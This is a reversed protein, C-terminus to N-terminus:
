SLDCPVHTENCIGSQTNGHCSNPFCYFQDGNSGFEHGYGGGVPGSGCLGNAGMDCGMRRSAAVAPKETAIVAASAM